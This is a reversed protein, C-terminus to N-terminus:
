RSGPLLDRARSNVERREVRQHEEEKLPPLITKLFCKTYCLKKPSNEFLSGGEGSCVCGVFLLEVIGLVSHNENEELEAM